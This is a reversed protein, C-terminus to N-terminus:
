EKKDGKHNKAASPQIEIIPCIASARHPLHPLRRARALTRHLERRFRRLAALEREVRELKEELKGRVCECPSRGDYRLRLIERIEELTFGLAQAHKVFRLRSLAEPAYVRYGAATRHPRPLLGLREYYRVTQVSVGTARAAQGIRVGEM